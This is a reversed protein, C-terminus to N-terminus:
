GLRGCSNLNSCLLDRVVTQLGIKILFVLVSVFQVFEILSNGKIKFRISNLERSKARNRGM